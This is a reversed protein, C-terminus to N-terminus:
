ATKESKKKSLKELLVKKVIKQEEILFARVIRQRVCGACRSGGYARSVTKESKAINKYAKSALHKIGKLSQKCDGCKPGHSHKKVYHAVLKGGPTKVPVIRNSKTAYSHRRRYTIRVNKVM